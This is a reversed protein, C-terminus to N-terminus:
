TGSTAEGSGASRALGTTVETCPETTRILPTAGDQERCISPEPNTKAWSRTIVLAWTSAPTLSGTTVASPSSYSAVGTWTSSSVSTATSATGPSGCTGSVKASAGAPDPSSAIMM